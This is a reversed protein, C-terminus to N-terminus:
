ELPTDYLKDDLTYTETTTSEQGLRAAACSSQKAKSTEHRKRAYIKDAGGAFLAYHKIPKAIDIPVAACLGTAIHWWEMALVLALTREMQWRDYRRDLDHAQNHLKPNFRRRSAETLRTALAILPQVSGTL